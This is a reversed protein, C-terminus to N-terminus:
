ERSILFISHRRIDRVIDITVFNVLYEIFDNVFIDVHIVARYLYVSMVLVTV